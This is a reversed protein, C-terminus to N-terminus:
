KKLRYGAYFTGACILWFYWPFVVVKKDKYVTETVVREIRKIRALSDIIKDKQSIIKEYVSKNVEVYKIRGKAEIAGEKITVTNVITDGPVFVTDFRIVGYESERREKEMRDLEVSLLRVSDELVTERESKVKEVHKTTTCSFINLCVCIFLIIWWIHANDKIACRSGDFRNHSNDM